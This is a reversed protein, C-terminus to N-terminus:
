PTLPSGDGHFRSDAAFLHMAPVVLREPEPGFTPGRSFFSPPLATATRPHIRETEQRTDLVVAAVAALGNLDLDDRWV